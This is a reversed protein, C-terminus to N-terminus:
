EGAQEIAQLSGASPETVQRLGKLGQRATAEDLLTLSFLGADDRGGSEVNTAALWPILGFIGSMGAGVAADRPAVNVYRIEGSGLTVNLVYRGPYATEVKVTHEGPALDVYLFSGNPLKGVPVGDVEIPAYAGGAQFMEPRLLVLRAREPEVMTLSSQVSEFTPGSAACGALVAVALLLSFAQTNFCGSYKSMM